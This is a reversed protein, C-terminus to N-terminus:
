LQNISERLARSQEIPLNAKSFWKANSVESKNKIYRRKSVKTYFLYVTDKKYEATSKYEGIQSVTNLSIDLEEKVERRVAQVPTESKRVGGGPLTWYKGSYSTQM